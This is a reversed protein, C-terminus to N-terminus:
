DVQTATVTIKLAVKELPNSTDGENGLATDAADTNNDYKWEWGVVYTDNGNAFATPLTGAKYLNNTKDGDLAEIAGKLQALTQYETAQEGKKGLTWVFSTDADLKDTDSGTTDATVTFTYDVEPKSDKGGTGDYAFGFEASGKTGPAIVNTDSLVTVDAADAADDGTGDTKYQKSFLDLTTDAAQTFGWKAVRATDSGETKTTYKAFTSSIACTTALTLVLMGSALRMVKNKKM